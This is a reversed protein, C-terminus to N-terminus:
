DVLIYAEHCYPNSETRIMAKKGTGLVSGQM